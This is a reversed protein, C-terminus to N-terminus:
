HIPFVVNDKTVCYTCERGCLVDSNASAPCIFSKHEKKMQECYEHSGYNLKGKIFSLILNFNSLKEIKSFDLIKEVKTYAYFKIKPFKAIIEAWFDIYEQNFFDGSSHLRVTTMKSKSIQKVISEKLWDKHNTFLELNSERLLRTYVYQYQAKRAYCTTACDGCNLCTKVAPLDFILINVLKSNGETLRKTPVYITTNLLEIAKTRSKTKELFNTRETFDKVTIKGINM